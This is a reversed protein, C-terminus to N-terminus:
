TQTYTHTPHQFLTQTAASEMVEGARMVCVRDAMHHVMPLDHTILLLAMGMDHQLDRLLDLIQAQITVDLATTPEDAILLAPRCALAMAIMVRQRQGGSLQHPYADLLRHPDPIGTRELLAVARQRVEGGRMGQHQMLPEALQRGIPYVPNLATMPEQFIMAVANGRLKQLAIDDLDLLSNGAFQMSKATRQARPPLLGLIALAAMTKGSGSEGVMALTEGPDIHFSIGGLATVTESSTVFRVALDQVALLPRHM